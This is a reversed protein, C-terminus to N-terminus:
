AMLQCLNKFNPKHMLPVALRSGLLTSLSSISTPKTNIKRSSMSRTSNPSHKLNQQSLPHLHQPLSRQWISVRRHLSKSHNHLSSFQQQTLRPSRTIAIFVPSHFPVPSTISVSHSHHFSNPSHQTLIIWNEVVLLWSLLSRVRQSHWLLSTSWM